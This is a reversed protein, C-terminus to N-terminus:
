LIARAFHKTGDLIIMPTELSSPKFAFTEGYGGYELASSTNVFLKDVKQLSDNAPSTRYYSTKMIAPLHTHSMVYIDADCISALDALRNIKGGEKRGGAGNGHLMFLTYFVPREHYHKDQKGFRIFLYCSTPSYVDSLGLQSALLKTISIGDNKWVRQEHNGDDLALIKDSIPSFLEVAKELQEMPHIRASFVDGVSNRVATDCIDGNLLAFCNPTEKVYDIWERIKPEYSNRDGLHLDAMTLIQLTEFDESLRHSIVKM